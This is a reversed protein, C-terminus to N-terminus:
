VPTQKCGRATKLYELVDEFCERESWCEGDRVMDKVIRRLEGVVMKAIERAVREAPVRARRILWTYCRDGDRGAVLYDFREEEGLGILKSATRVISDYTPSGMRVAVVLPAPSVVVYDGESEGLGTKLLFASATIPDPAPIVPPLGEIVGSEVLLYVICYWDGYLLAYGSSICREARAEVYSQVLEVLERVGDGRGV